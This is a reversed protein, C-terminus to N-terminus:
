VGPVRYVTELKHQGKVLLIDWENGLLPNFLGGYEWM